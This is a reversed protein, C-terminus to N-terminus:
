KTGTGRSHSVLPSFVCLTSEMGIYWDWQISTRNQVLGVLSPCFPVSVSPQGGDRHTGTGSYVLGITYWDWSIPVFPSQSVSPHGGARHVLGM